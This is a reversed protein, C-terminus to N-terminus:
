KWVLILKCFRQLFVFIRRFRWSYVFVIKYKQNFYTIEEALEHIPELGHNELIMIFIHFGVFEKGNVQFKRFLEIDKCVLLHFFIDLFLQKTLQLLLVAEPRVIHRLHLGNGVLRKNFM